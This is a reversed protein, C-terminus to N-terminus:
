KSLGKKMEEFEAKTIEGNAYRIEVIKIADEEKFKSQYRQKYNWYILAILLLIHILSFIRTGFDEYAISILFSILFAILYSIIAFIILDIIFFNFITKLIDNQKM